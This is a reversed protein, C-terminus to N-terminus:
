RWPSPLWRAAPSRAARRDAAEWISACLAFSIAARRPRSAGRAARAGHVAAHRDGRGTHTLATTIQIPGPRSASTPSGRTAPTTSSCTTPSSTATSSARATSRRWVRPSGPSWVALIESASGAGRRALRARHRRAVLELTLFLNDGHEGVDHVASSTRTICSPSRAPRACSGPACRLTM